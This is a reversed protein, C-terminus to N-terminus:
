LWGLVTDSLMDETDSSWKGFDNTFDAKSTIISLGDVRSSLQRVMSQENELVHQRLKLKDSVICGLLKEQNSPRISHENAQMSVM